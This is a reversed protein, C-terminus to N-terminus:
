FCLTLIGGLVMLTGTIGQLTVPDHFIFIGFMFSFGVASFGIGLAIAAPLLQLSRTVLLQGSWALLGIAFLNLWTVPEIDQILSPQLIGLSQLAILSFLSIITAMAQLYTTITLATEKHGILRICLSGYTACAASSIAVGVGVLRSEDWGIGSSSPTYSIVGVGSFSVIAGSVVLWSVEENLFVKAAIATLLPHTCGIVVADSIPLLFLSVYYFIISGTGGLARGILLHRNERHGHVDVKHLHAFLLCLCLSLAARSLTIELSNLQGSMLKVLLSIISFNFSTGLACAVGSNWLSWAESGKIYSSELLPEEYEDDSSMM